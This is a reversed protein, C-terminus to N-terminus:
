MADCARRKFGREYFSTTVVSRGGSYAHVADNDSKGIKVFARKRLVSDIRALRSTISADQAAKRSGRSAGRGLLTFGLIYRKNAGRLVSEILDVVYDESGSCTDLYAAGSRLRRWESQLAVELTANSTTAGSRKAELYQPLGPNAVHVRKAAVGAETLHKMTRLKPDIGDCFDDLVVVASKIRVRKALRAFLSSTKSKFSSHCASHAKASYRTKKAPGGRARSLWARFWPLRELFQGPSAVRCGRRRGPLWVWKRRELMAKLNKSAYLLGTRPPEKRCHRLLLTLLQDSMAIPMILLQDGLALHLRVCCNASKAVTVGRSFAFLTQSEPMWSVTSDKDRFRNGLSTSRGGGSRSHAMHNNARLVRVYRKM